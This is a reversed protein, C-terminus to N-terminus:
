PKFYYNGNTPSRSDVHVWNSKPLDECRLGLEELVPLLMTRIEDCPVGASYFDVAKGEKHASNKAGKVFANYSKDHYQTGPANVSGPRIWCSIAIPRNLMIRIKDLRTALDVINQKEINSPIHHIQWSPLYTAEHVTFYQSIKSSPNSWDIADWNQYQYSM